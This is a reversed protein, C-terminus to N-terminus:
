FPSRGTAKEEQRASSKVSAYIAENTIGTEKNDIAYVVSDIKRGLIDIRSLIGSLDVPANESENTSLKLSEYDFKYPLVTGMAVAPATFTVNGAISDLRTILEMFSDTVADSFSDLFRTYENEATIPIFVDANQAENSIEGALQSIASIATGKNRNIGEAMLKLMDPMYTHFNSLPGKDPESFGLYDRITQAVSSVSDHVWSACANIGDSINSCIDKGWDWADWALGSFKDRISSGIEGVKSAVTSKMSSFGDSISSKISSVKSSVTSYATSFGDSLATKISSVKNSVAEKAATFKESIATKISSVKSSVTSYANSFGDSIATKISSVKNSVAEKAASFKESVATKIDSVKSNVTNYAKSFGESVTAKISSLKNAVAEKAATFKESVATKINTCATKITTTVKSWAQTCKDKIGNWATICANKITEWAKAFFTRIGTWTATIGNLLGQIIYVGLQMMVTSPSHIGFATCFANIFPDIINEKIWTGIGVFANIIGNLVGQWINGGAAEIQESWYGELSRYASVLMDWINSLISLALSSAGGIVAGLLTAALQLLRLWDISSVIGTLSDWIDNGLKSWDLTEAFGILLLLAGGLLSSLMGALSSFIGPWDINNLATAVDAGIQEFDISEALTKVFDFVNGVFTSITDGLMAWDVSNVAGMLGNGLGRALTRYDFNHVVAHIFSLAAQLGAGLTRGLKNWDLNRNFSNLGTMLSRGLNAWDFGTVLLYLTNVVTNVGSAITNGILSWNINDVLSNLTRTLGDVFATINPGVNAWDVATNIKEWVGNIKEAILAGLGEFDGNQFASKIKNVFDSIKSDIPVDEFYKSPDDTKTSDNSDSSTTNNLEDFGALSKNAKDAAKSTDKLSNAYDQQVAVAKKFQTAGTLAAFFMGIKTLGESLLNILYTLIPAVTVLIPAFATGFSNKLQSLATTMSSMAKNVEPSVQAINKIGETAGKIIGSIFRRKLMSKIRTGISTFAKTFKKVMATTSNGSKNLSKLKNTVSIISKGLLKFSTVGISGIGKLTTSLIHTKNNAAAVKSEYEALKQELEAIKQLLEQYAATDTGSITATGTTELNQKEAEYKQIEAKAQAIKQAITTWETSDQSVGKNLLKQQETVYGNLTSRAQEIKANVEDYATTTVTTSGLADLQGRLTQITRQTNAVKFEFSDVASENGSMAKKAAPELAYMKNELSSISKGLATYSSDFAKTEASASKIEDKVTNWAQKNTDALEKASQKAADLEAKAKQTAALEAAKAREVESRASSIATQLSNINRYYSDLIGSVNKYEETNSGLRLSSGNKQINALENEYRTLIEEANKIDYQLTRWSQSNKKVGSAEMKDQRDYLKFLATEAKKIQKELEAYEPSVINAQKLSEAKSRLKVLADSLVKTKGELTAIEKLGLNSSDNLASYIPSFKDSLASLATNLKATESTFKQFSVTDTTSNISETLKDVINMSGKVSDEVVPAANQIAQVGKNVANNLHEGMQEFSTTASDVANKMRQSGAEFGQTDLDTNVIISGDSYGEAM